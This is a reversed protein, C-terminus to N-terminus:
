EEIRLWFSGGHREVNKMQDFLPSLVGSLQADEHIFYNPLIPKYKGPNALLAIALGYQESYFRECMFDPYDYPLYIDHLQVIVGKKLRPLIELFFVMADSNPLIRHSNDVFLIDNEELESFITVDTKELPSSIMRNVLSQIETRPQPDICTIQTNLQQERIAKAAVKTSHGSGIEFYRTPRITALLTYLMIIDMGPLYKNDWVPQLPDTEAQSHKITLLPEQYLLAKGLLQQYAPKGQSILETLEPHPSQGPVYRPKFATRYELFLTQFRPHLFRYLSRLM